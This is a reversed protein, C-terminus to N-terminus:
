RVAEFSAIICGFPDYHMSRDDSCFPQQLCAALHAAVAALLGGAAMSCLADEYRLVVLAYKRQPKVYRALRWAPLLKRGYPEICM